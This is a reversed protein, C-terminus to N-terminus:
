LQPPRADKTGSLSDSVRELIDVTDTPDGSDRMAM